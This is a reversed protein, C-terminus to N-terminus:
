WVNNRSTDEFWSAIKYDTVFGASALAQDYHVSTVGTMTVTNGVIAGYFTGNNGGGSLSVDADPAYISAEMNANGSLSISQTGSTPKIGYLIVNAPRSNTPLSGSNGNSSGTGNTIGNGSISANGALYFSAIVGDGLAIQGQGSISINGTVWIDAYTTSGDAAGSITLVNKGSLSIQSLKYRFAGKTAGATITTTNTVSSPNVTIGTTWAPTQVSNIDQYFDTSVTGTVNAVGTATGDNTGINGYIHANGASIVTGDTDVNGNQQRKSADYQGNTSKTNDRSDYSDIVINQDTLNIKGKALIAANFPSLPKAIVEIRRSVLPRILPTGTLRDNWISLKRLVADRKEDSGRQPGPVLNTGTARIRYYQWGRSDIMQSPADVTVNLNMTTSGEGLYTITTLSSSSNGNGPAGGVWPSQWASSPSSVSKRLEVMALDVGSETALIAEQWSAAHFVNQYKTTVLRIAEAGLL